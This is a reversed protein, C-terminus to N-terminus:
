PRRRDGATRAAGGTGRGTVLSVTVGEWSDGYAADDSGTGGDITDAGKGGFIVDDGGGGDIIDDGAQGFLSDRGDLGFITDGGAGAFVIDNGNTVGDDADIVDARFTGEIFAM